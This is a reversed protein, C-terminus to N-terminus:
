RGTGKKFGRERWQRQFSKRAPAPLDRHKTWASLPFPLWKVWREASSAGPVSLSRIMRSGISTLWGYLVPRRSIRAWINLGRREGSGTLSQDVAQRRWRRLLDPIPIRVPCVTACRGCLTSAQPLHLTTGLGAFAPTFVSGMPGSYVSGYAHGGVATYVPCHNLCASCRICRLIDEFESGILKSRGNDVLVVHFSKPGAVEGAQKPGHIFTTYNSLREGIASRALVRLLMSVDDLTPVVKEIGTVVIHTDPLTMTLDANGENTVIVAGGTEAVLFNAGTIGVEASLFKERLVERAEALMDDAETLPAARKVEHHTEFTKGVEELSVHLAPALIHSPTEDRLQIIYEGLDTETVSHGTGELAANLGIEETVMSKSKIIGADKNPEGCLGSVIECAEAATEAWHVKGGAAIVAAEFQELYASLNKLTNARINAAQDCWGAFEPCDATAAHRISPMVRRMGDLSRQLTKDALADVTLKPFQESTTRM